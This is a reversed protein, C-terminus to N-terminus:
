VRSVYSNSGIMDDLVLIMNYLVFNNCFVLNYWQIVLEIFYNGFFYLLTGFIWVMVDIVSIMNYLVLNNCFVLNYCQIVLEIFYNGCM